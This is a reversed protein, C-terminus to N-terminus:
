EKEELTDFLKDIDAENIKALDDKAAAEQQQKEKDKFQEQLQRRAFEKLSEKPQLKADRIAQAYAAQQEMKKAAAGIERDITTLEEPNALAGFETERYLAHHPQYRFINYLTHKM